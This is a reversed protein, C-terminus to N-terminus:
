ESLKKRLQEAKKGILWFSLALIAFFIGKNTRDWFYEFYRTYINLLFFVIVIDRLTDEKTKFTYVLLAILLLTYTLAWLALKGQRIASWVDYSLNGSTSLVLGSLLFFCWSAYWSLKYFHRFYINNRFLYSALLMLAGLALMRLPYNMGLFYSHDSDSSWVYTQAGWSSILAVLACIWLLKSHLYMACIGYLLAIAFIALGYSHIDSGLSKAFYAVSVGLSLAILVTFSENALTAYTFKKNRRKAIWVLLLALAAFVVGIVLESFSFFRRLREIWKEDLVLAGFALLACSVAAISAYFALSDFETRYSSISGKLQSAKSEDLLGDKQWQEIVAELLKSEKKNVRM